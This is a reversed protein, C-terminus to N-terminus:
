RNESCSNWRKLNRRVHGYRFTHMNSVPCLSGIVQFIPIRRDRTWNKRKLLIEALLGLYHCIFFFVSLPLKKYSKVRSVGAKADIFFNVRPAGDLSDGNKYLGHM